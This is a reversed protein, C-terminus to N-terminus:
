NAKYVYIRKMYFQECYNNESKSSTIFQQKEKRYDFIQRFVVLFFCNEWFDVSFNVQFPDKRRKHHIYPVIWKNFHMESVIKPHFPNKMIRYFSHIAPITIWQILSKSPVEEVRPWKLIVYGIHELTLASNNLTCRTYVVPYNKNSPAPSKTKGPTLLM